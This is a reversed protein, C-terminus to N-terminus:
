KTIPKPNYLLLENAKSGDKILKEKTLFGQKGVHCAECSRTRDTRKKINHVPSGWYNPLADYREMAIGASKFTDRVTPVLRLTTLTKRDSPDLGLNFDAKPTAGKGLHCGSCNSYSGGSHCAQCAVKKGHQAHSAKAKETKESGPKHCNVCAPKEKVEAKAQYITGTGHFEMKKHCNLCTMGKQYHVDASGGLDGTFEPYVRGGHCMACTKGDDKAVFQHNKLLGTTVGGIKPSMVHCDGCSAHCSRCSQQFVKEDFIKLERPSFRGSVGQRLGAATFHLSGKYTDAIKEHCKGCVKLDSSPRKVLGAHAKDRSAAKEDGRHCSACGEAFHPDGDLLKRDV